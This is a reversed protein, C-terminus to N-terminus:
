TRSALGMTRTSHRARTLIASVPLGSLLPKLAWHSARAWRTSSSIAYCQAWTSESLVSSFSHLYTIMSAYSGLQSIGGAALAPWSTYAGNSGHDPRMSVNAVLDALSLARIWYGTYLERHFFAAMDARVSANLCDTMYLSIVNFDYVHRVAQQTRNPYMTLWYGTGPGAYADLVLEALTNAKQHYALAGTENHLTSLLYAYQNM